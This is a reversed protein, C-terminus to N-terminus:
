RSCRSSARSTRTTPAPTVSGVDDTQWVHMVMIGMADPIAEASDYGSEAILMRGQDDFAVMTPAALGTVAASVSFDGVISIDDPRITRADIVAPLAM